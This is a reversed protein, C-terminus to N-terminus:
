EMRGGERRGIINYRGMEKESIMFQVVIIISCVM